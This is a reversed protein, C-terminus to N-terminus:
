PCNRKELIFTSHSQATSVPFAPYDPMETKTLGEIETIIIKPLFTQKDIEIYTTFEEEKNVLMTMGQVKNTITIESNGVGKIIYISDMEAVFTYDTTRTSDKQVTWKDGIKIASAPMYNIWSEIHNALVESNALSNVVSYVQERLAPSLKKTKSKFAKAIDKNEKIALIKGSHSLEVSFPKNIMMAMQTSADLINLMDATKPNIIIERKGFTMTSYCDTYMFNLLYSDPAKKAVRYQLVKTYESKNEQVENNISASSQSSITSQMEFCAGEELNFRFDIEKQAFSQSSAFLFLLGIIAKIYYSSKM